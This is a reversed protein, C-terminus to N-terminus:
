PAGVAGPASVSVEVGRRFRGGTAALFSAVARRIADGAQAPGIGAALTVRVGVDGGAAPEAVLAATIMPERAFAERAATSVDPDDYPPPVPGGRALAALRVGDVALPVPGAVDIVAAGAEQRAALWVRAAPVPVPRADPRWMALADLCTFALVARRGDKGVLVPLAMESIKERRPKGGRPGRRHGAGQMVPRGAMESETEGGTPGVERVAGGREDGTTEAEALVAVVPVLLRSVALAALAANEGEQGAAFAALAAAVRPDADGHDDPSERGGTISDPM